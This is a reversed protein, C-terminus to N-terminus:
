LAAKEIINGDTDFKCAPVFPDHYFLFWANEEIYKQELAEKQGIAELPYNDYAMIWLPNFHVHTPLLDGLHVAVEGESEIRVIQHGRNHGGTHIVRVGKSIEEDGDILRLNGREKLLENNVPWFTNISRINPTLVDEWETKQIIHQADPFTLSLEGGSDRTVVGGAHDFDYHTLIVCDIDGPGVGARELEGPVDWEEQVRFNKKQKETLKNGTGTEILICADDTKVLMPWTVLPIFNDEDPPYKKQWLLKPVVGFMAGGDMAFRGGNLWTIDFRGLKLHKNM